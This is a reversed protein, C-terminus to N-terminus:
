HITVTIQRAQAHKVANRLAESAIRFAEDRVVPNLDRSAGDVDVRILPLNAATPDSTLEEGIAAIGNALDNLTTASARLGRVTNRGEVIAAQAQDLAGDVTLQEVHVTPCFHRSAATRSAPGFRGFV